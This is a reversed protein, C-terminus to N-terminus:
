KVLIKRTAIHKGDTIQVAYVGPKLDQIDVAEDKQMTVGQQKMMRGNLDLVKVSVDKSLGHFFLRGNEVPNPYLTIYSMENGPIGLIGNDLINITMDKRLDASVTSTARVTVTGEQQATLLGNPDITAKGTGNTVTWTVSQNGIGEPIVIATLQLTSGELVEDSPASLTVSDIAVYERLWQMAARENGNEDILFAREDNRWLGPRWGWLTIGQVSPHRWYVPFVSKYRTLQVNDNALGDIDMETVYIPLGAEALFNLNNTLVTSGDGTSFAHAQIGVADILDREKLLNVITRYTNARVANNEIGYENLMLVTTEPFRERALEFATIVWDWGTIGSGGLTELYDGNGAGTPPDNTPENVVELYDIDPYRSAVTDFWEIIEAMQEASDLAEIWAPQQAGWLLVHFRFPLGNDKALNYAADLQNWNYVDRTGEVSGWKGSNEPTVQNWYNLFDPTAQSASHVNGLWKSKGDALPPTPEIPPGAGGLDEVTYEQSSIGFAIKDIDLGNERSGIQFTQTLNGAPVVFTVPAEGANGTERSLNIWKWTVSGATGGTSVTQSNQNFGISGIGNVTIWDNPDFSKSGFGNGYFFSDDNAADSGVRVLVFLDYTEAAPFTAGFTIVNGASAPADGAANVSTTVYTLSGDQQTAWNAGLSADESEVILPDTQALLVHCTITLNLLLFIGLKKM